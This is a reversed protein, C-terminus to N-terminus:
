RKTMNQIAAHYLVDFQQAIVEPSHREAVYRHRQQALTLDARPADTMQSRAVIFATLIDQLQAEDGPPVTIGRNQSLMAPITGVKTAIVPLGCALAELVSVPQNEFHSFMLFADHQQLVEALDKGTRAQLFSVYEEVGLEKSYDILREKDNGEGIFDVHFDQRQAKLKAVTRLIGSINKSDDRMWSVHVFTVKDSKVVSAPLVFTDTDVVNSIRTYHRNELGWKKMSQELNLSVPCVYSADKVFVRGLRLQIGSDPYAGERAYRSWHETIIYPVHHLKLLLWPLGAARTLVNVHCVEPRKGQWYHRKIYRYGKIYGLMLWFLRVLGTILPLEFRTKPVYVLVEHLSTQESEVPCLEIKLGRVAVDTQVMLVAVDNLRTVAKAHKQIFVGDGADKRNPYWATTFLVRM